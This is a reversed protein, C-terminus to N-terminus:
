NMSGIVVGLAEVDFVMSKAVYMFEQLLEKDDLDEATMLGHQFESQANYMHYLAIVVNDDDTLESPKGANILDVSDGDASFIQAVEDTTREAM